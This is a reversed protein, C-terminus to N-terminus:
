RDAPTGAALVPDTRAQDSDADVTRSSRGALWVFSAIALVTAALMTLAMPVPDDEGRLGVLPSALAGLCFQVAGLLASAAGANRPAEAIALASANGLILGLSAIAVFICPLLLAAGAGAAACALILLSALLAVGLGAATLRRPPVRRVLRASVAGLAMVGIANVAFAISYATPSLGLIGQFVFPSAAIYGFLVMFAFGTTLTYGVYVRNRLVTGIGGALARLGAPTRREPPLSEDICRVVGVFSLVSLAAIVAFVARWGGIAVIGVGILPAVVPALGGIMMMLQFLRASTTVDAARDVIVARALVVGAAGGLGQVLRLAVLTEINPAVVCLVGSAISVATGILLPRRRGFRDSLPGILLQGFALGLLFSTLTMQVGAASAGLEATMQPFGPLYMDTALPAVASLLALVLIAILSPTSAPSSSSASTSGAAM